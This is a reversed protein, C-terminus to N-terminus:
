NITAAAAPIRLVQITLASSDTGGCRQSRAFFSLSERLTLMKDAMAKSLARKAGPMLGPRHTITGAEPVRLPNHRIVRTGAKPKNRSTGVAAEATDM